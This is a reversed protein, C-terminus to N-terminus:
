KPHNLKHQEKLSTVNSLVSMMKRAPPLTVHIQFTKYIDSIMTLTLQDGGDYIPCCIWLKNSIYVIQKPCVVEVIIQLMCEGFVHLVSDPLNIYLVYHM